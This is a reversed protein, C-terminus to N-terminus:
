LTIGKEHAQGKYLRLTPHHFPWLIQRIGSPLKNLLAQMAICLITCIQMEQLM